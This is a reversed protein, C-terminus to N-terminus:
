GLVISQTTICANKRAFKEALIKGRDEWYHASGGNQCRWGAGRVHSSLKLDFFAAAGCIPCHAPAVPYYGKPPEPPPAGGAALYEIVALVAPCSEGLTCTCRQNHDVHHSLPRVEVGFDVRSFYGEISVLTEQLHELIETTTSAALM